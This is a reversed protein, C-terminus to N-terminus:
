IQETLITCDLKTSFRCIVNIYPIKSILCIIILCVFSKFLLCTIYISISVCTKICIYNICNLIVSCWINICMCSSICQLKNKCNILALFFTM